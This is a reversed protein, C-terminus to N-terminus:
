AEDFGFGSDSPFTDAEWVEQYTQKTLAGLMYPINDVTLGDATGAAVMASVIQACAKLCTQQQISKDNRGYGNGGSSKPSEPTAGSIGVIVKDGKANTTYEIVAPGGQCAKIQPLLSQDNVWYNEWTGDSKHWGVRGGFATPAYKSVVINESFANM